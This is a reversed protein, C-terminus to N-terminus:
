LLHSEEDKKRWFSLSESGGLGETMLMTIPKEQVGTKTEGGGQGTCYEM